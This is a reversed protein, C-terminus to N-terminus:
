DVVIVRDGEKIYSAGDAVIVQGKELGSRILVGQDTLDEITVMIKRCTSDPGMLYVFGQDRDAEVLSVMPILTFTQKKSPFIKTEAMFGHYLKRHDSELKLEVEYTGTMPDPAGAIEQVVGTFPEDKYADFWIIASDGLTLKIVDQDTVGVKVIWDEESTGFLYVPYGPGILENEEVLQKLIKGNVPAKITAYQFNFQAIELQSKAVEVGTKADQYQELTVVSDAYLNGVRKFDRQAKEYGSQAQNVQAQIEDLKLSALIQGKEVRDGEKMALYDVIGGIKFSLRMETSSGLLGSTIIPRSYDLQGVEITHVARSSDLQQNNQNRQCGIFLLLAPLLFGIQKM